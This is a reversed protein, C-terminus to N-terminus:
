ATAAQAAARPTSGAVTGNGSSAGPAGGSSGTSSGSGADDSSAVEAADIATGDSSTGRTKGGCRVIARAAAGLGVVAVLRAGV